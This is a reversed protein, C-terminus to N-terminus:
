HIIRMVNCYHVESTQDLADSFSFFGREHFFCFINVLVVGYFSVGIFTQCNKM